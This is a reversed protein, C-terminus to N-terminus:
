APVRSLISTHPNSNKSHHQTHAGAKRRLVRWRTRFIGALILTDRLVLSRRPRIIIYGSRIRMKRATLSGAAFIGPHIDTWGFVIGGLMGVALRLNLFVLASCRSVYLFEVGPIRVAGDLVNFYAIKIQPALIVVGGFSAVTLRQDVFGPIRNGRQPQSLCQLFEPFEILCPLVILSIQLDKRFSWQGFFSM